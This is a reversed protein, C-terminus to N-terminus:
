GVMLSEAMQLCITELPWTPELPAEIHFRQGEYEFALRWAHLFMRDADRGGYRKDGLIPSGLSRMAVRLQHTRGTQPKLIFLRLPPELLATQFRTIALNEHARTLKWCGNRSKEMGGKVWGQKKSPRIDSLALYTKEVRHEEFMKGLTSAADASCALILAGSTEKDLRHVLWLRPLGFSAATEKLFNRNDVDQQVAIGAPKNIVIFDKHQLLLSPTIM